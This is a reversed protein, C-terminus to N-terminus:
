STVTTGTFYSMSVVEQSRTFPAGLCDFIQMGANSGWRANGPAAGKRAAM